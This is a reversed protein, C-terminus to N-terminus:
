PGNLTRVTVPPNAVKLKAGAFSKTHFVFFHYAPIIFTLKIRAHNCHIHFSFNYIYAVGSPQYPQWVILCLHSTSTPLTIETVYEM